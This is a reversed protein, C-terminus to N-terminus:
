SYYRIAFEALKIADEQTTAGAIYGDKHVFIATPINTSKQLKDPTMGCLFEPFPIKPTQSGQSTPVCQVIYGTRNNPFVVFAIQSPYISKYLTWPLSKTLTLIKGKTNEIISKELQKAKLNSYARLILNNLTIRATTMASEFRKTQMQNYYDIEDPIEDWTPNFQNIITVINMTNYSGPRDYAPIGNDMADICQILHKDVHQHIPNIFKATAEPSPADIKKYNEELVSYIYANGFDKWILGISSYPINNWPRKGNGGVQHHDYKGHGIDFCLANTNEPVQNIRILIKDWNDPINLVVASFVEDAHMNGAHTLFSANNLINEDTPNTYIKM